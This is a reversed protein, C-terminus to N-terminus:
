MEDLQKRLLELEVDTQISSHEAAQLYAEMLTNSSSKTANELMLKVKELVSLNNKILNHTIKQQQLQNEITKVCKSYVIKSAIANLAQNNDNNQLAIQVQNHCENADKQSKEYQEQIIKQSIIALQLDEKTEDIAENIAKSLNEYDGSKYLQQRFLENKMKTLEDNISEFSILESDQINDYSQLKKEGNTISELLRNEINKSDSVANTNCKSQSVISQEESIKEEFYDFNAKIKELQPQQEIVLKKLRYVTAQYREKQFKVKNALSKDNRQLALEYRKTWKDLEAQAEELNKQAIKQAANASNTAKRLKGLAGQQLKIEEYEM